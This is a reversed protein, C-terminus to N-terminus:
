ASTCHYFLIVEKLSCAAASTEQEVGTEWAIKRERSDYSFSEPAAMVFTAMGKM